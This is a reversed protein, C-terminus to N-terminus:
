RTASAGAETVVLQATVTNFHHSVLVTAWTEAGDAGSKRGVLYLYNLGDVWMFPVFLVDLGQSFHVRGCADADCTFVTEYGAKALQTEFASYVERISPGPDTRYAIRTVRGEPRMDGTANGNKFPATQLRTRDSDKADYGTIVSGAFRAIGPYDRAGPIDSNAAQALAVGAVAALTSLMVSILFLIPRRM